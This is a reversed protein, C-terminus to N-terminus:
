VPSRPLGTGPTRIGGEGSLVGRTTSKRMPNAAKEDASEANNTRDKPADDRVSSSTESGPLAVYRAVRNQGADATPSADTTGTARLEGAAPASLDPLAALTGRIWGPLGELWEGLAKPPADDKEFCKELVAQWAGRPWDTRCCALEHMDRFRRRKASGGSKRNRSITHSARRAAV